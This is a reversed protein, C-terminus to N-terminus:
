ILQLKNIIKVSRERGLMRVNNKNEIEVISLSEVTATMMFNEVTKYQKEIATSVEASEGLCENIFMFLLENANRACKKTKIMYDSKLGNVTNNFVDILDRGNEVYFINVGKEIQLEFLRDKIENIKDEYRELLISNQKDEGETMRIYETNQKKKCEKIYKNRYLIILYKENFNENLVNKYEAVDYKVINENTMLTIFDDSSKNFVFNIGEEKIFLDIYEQKLYIQTYEM